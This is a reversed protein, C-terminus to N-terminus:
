EIVMLTQQLAVGDDTKGITYLYKGDRSYTAEYGKAVPVISEQNTGDFEYQHLYSTADHWFHMGDLWKVPTTVAKNLGTLPVGSWQHLDIDYVSLSRGHQGALLRGGAKFDLELVDGNGGRVSLETAQLPTTSDSSPLYSLQDITLREGAAHALYFKSFYQSGAVQVSSTTEVTKIERAAVSGKSVYGITARGRQPETSYLLAGASTLSFDGVRAALVASYEGSDVVLRRVEGNAFRVYALNHSSPDFRVETPAHGGRTTIARTKAPSDVDVVLWETKKDYTHKMLLYRDNAAWAQLAFAHRKGTTFTSTPLALTEAKPTDGEINVITLSPKTKDPVLAIYKGGTRVAMSGLAELPLVAKTEPTTPVFIASNLWLVKGSAVSINKQWTRYGDLQMKVLYDGPYLTIKSPTSDALQATGVTVRANEPRSDFQVLGGQQITGADRNFRYGLLLFVLVASTLIVLSTMFSYVAVRKIIKKRSPQQKM